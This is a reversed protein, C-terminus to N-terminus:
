ASDFKVDPLPLQLKKSEERFCKIAQLGNECIDTSKAAVGESCTDIVKDVKEVMAPNDYKQTNLAKVKGWDVKNDTLYGMKDYFCGYLCKYENSEPVKGDTLIGLLQKLDINQQKSCTTVATVVKTHYEPSVAAVICFVALLTTLSLATNM